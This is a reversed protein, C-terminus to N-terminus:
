VKGGSSWDEITEITLVDGPKYADWAERSMLTFRPGIVQMSHDDFGIQLPVTEVVIYEKEDLTQQRRYEIMRQIHALQKRMIEDVLGLLEDQFHRAQILPSDVDIILGEYHRLVPRRNSM